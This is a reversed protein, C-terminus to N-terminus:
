FTAALLIGDLSDPSDKNDLRFRIRTSVPGSNNSVIPQDQVILAIKYANETTNKWRVQKGPHVDM